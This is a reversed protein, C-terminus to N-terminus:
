HKILDNYLNIYKDSIMELDYTSKITETARQKICENLNNVLMLSILLEELEEVNEKEFLYGNEDNNIIDVNGGVKSALIILNSSMAELLANSIGEYRSPLVFVDAVSLYEKVNDVKGKYIISEDHLYSSIDVSGAGLIVLESDKKNEYPIKTWAKLLIDIGKIPELRGAYIFIRKNKNIGLDERNILKQQEGLMIYDKMNIGNPLFEIKSPSVGVDILDQYIPNSIAIFKKLNTKMFWVRYKGFAKGYYIRKIECGLENAGGTIKAISPIKTLFSILSATLGPASLAHAHVVDINERNQFIYKISKVLYSIPAIRPHSSVKVRIVNIGDIVEEFKLGSHRRTIVTVDIGKEVLIKGLRQAQKEAGGVLPHFSSILMVVKM